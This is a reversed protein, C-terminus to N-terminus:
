MIALLRVGTVIWMSLLLLNSSAFVVMRLIVHNFTLHILSHLIRLFVYGWAAYVMGETQQHTLLLLLCLVYFLVPLELLNMYNRNPLIVWDPVKSSESLKFDQQGVKGRVAAAFRAIPILVLVCFTWGVLLFLPWLISLEM